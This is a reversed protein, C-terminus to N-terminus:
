GNGGLFWYVSWPPLREGGDPHSNWILRGDPRDNHLHGPQPGLNAMLGLVSGDGLRWRATLGHPQHLAFTAAHGDMGPLRPAVEAARLRLLEAHLALWGAHPERGPESWDLKSAACTAEANPDPIRDVAGPVSFEPFSKFEERRGERVARALDGAYDCFYLFPTDAAWEQGQWLLPPMPALLLIATAARVAEPPAIQHLREGLARNGVQDHNQLFSVFAQPPLHASSQGRAQGKRHPSAEGQYAFGQTLARGAWVMPDKAYDEYYGGTEGTAAVHLVHHIDDSWQADYLGPALLSAINDDNELVLHVQRGPEVGARIRQALEVLFHPDSDDKIAHVADFRLGDFRYENLWYLANNVFFDRVTAAGADDFNNAKGWPTHHHDTFFQPAYAHLYNGSPGFHNYVVDLYVMLGRRHCERVLHKLDEPTGYAADPAFLLVGDYGWGRSGEFEAVPMLEIATVGLARLHDLKEEIARYSGQPTFTGAHLEYIVAEHWPRGRWDDSGWDFAAPDVVQSPGSPDDPQFRSAPDPVEIGGDIRFRYLSGPRAKPEVRQWWGDGQARLPHPSGELMLEVETAAPAWLRFRVADDQVEAGFPMPHRHRIM